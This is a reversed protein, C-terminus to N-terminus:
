GLVSGAFTPGEPSALHPWQTMWLDACPQALRGSKSMREVNAVSDVWITRAGILRAFRLAFFGVSAGTSIVVHPRERLVVLAVRLAQLLLATKRQENADGVIHIRAGPVQAALSPEVTLFAVDCGDFAPRLRMMQVWHGGGSCAALLRIPKGDMPPM